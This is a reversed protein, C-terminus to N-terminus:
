RTPLNKAFFKSLPVTFMNSTVFNLKRTLRKRIFLVYIEIFIQSSRFCEPFKGGTDGSKQQFVAVTM